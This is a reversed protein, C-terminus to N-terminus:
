NPSGAGATFSQVPPPGASASQNSDRKALVLKMLEVAGARGKKRIFKRPTRDGIEFVIAEMGHSYYFYNRSIVAPKLRQTPRVRPSYGPIRRSLGEIWDYVLGPMNGEVGKPMPYYVDDWTSHFDIGFYFKGDTEKEKKKLFRSVALGEPQNFQTWDRNLDVGGSNHRWHGEDVGDPNMLPIVYMTWEKRFRRALSSNGAIREVFPKMALYGTVEPPHQRSIAIMMKKSSPKGIRIMRLPRGERSTGISSISLKRKAAFKDMWSFVDKSTKLEQASVWLPRKGLRLKMVIRKPRSEAGSEATGKEEEAIFESNLSKWRKGDRSIKPHYRHRAFEPYKLRIRVVKKREAWVKFAYWPSMNIPENEPTILVTYEDESNRTVENLRAGDFRNSFYVGDSEFSFIRRIQKEVPKTTTDFRPAAPQDTQRANDQAPLIFSLALIPTLVAASRILRKAPNPLYTRLELEM